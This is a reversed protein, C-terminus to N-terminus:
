AILNRDALAVRLQGPDTFRIADWGRALAAAVNAASDDIFTAQAATFGFHQECHEYISPDPKTIGVEGSILVGELKGLAPYMEPIGEFTIRGWNSLGVCRHGSHRVEDLLRASGEILSGLSHHFHEVYADVVWGHGPHQREVIENVKRPSAGRDIHENVELTFVTESLQRAAEDSGTAALMAGHRDWPILVNGLDWVVVRDGTGGDTAV